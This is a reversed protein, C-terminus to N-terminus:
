KRISIANHARLMFCDHERNRTISFEPMAKIIDDETPWQRSDLDQADRSRWFRRDQAFMVADHIMIVPSITWPQKRIALLEAILPCQGYNRSYTTFPGSGMHTIHADLFFLTLVSPDIVMAANLLTPSDGHHIVVNGPWTKNSVALWLDKDLEISILKQYFGTTIALQLTKGKYTGTEIFTHAREFLNM